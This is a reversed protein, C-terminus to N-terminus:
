DRNELGPAAVKKNLYSRVKRVATTNGLKNLSCEDPESNNLMLHFSIPQLLKAPTGVMSCRPPGATSNRGIRFFIHEEGSRGNRSQTEGLRWKSPYWTERGATFFALAELQVSGEM